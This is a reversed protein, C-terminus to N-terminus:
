FGMKRYNDIIRLLLYFLKNYKKTSYKKMSFDNKLLIIKYINNKNLFRFINAYEIKWRSPFLIMIIDFESLDYTDEAGIRKHDYLIKRNIVTHQIERTTLLTLRFRKKTKVESLFDLDSLVVNPPATALVLVNKVM